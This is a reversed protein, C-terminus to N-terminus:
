SYISELNALESLYHNNVVINSLLEEFNGILDNEFINFGFYKAEINLALFTFLCKSVTTYNKEKISIEISKNLESLTKSFGTHDNLIFRYFSARLLYCKYEINGQDIEVCKRFLDVAEIPSKRMQNEDLNEWFYLANKFTRESDSPPIKEFFFYHSWTSLDDLKTNIYPNKIGEFDDKQLNYFGNIMLFKEFNEKTFLEPYFLRPWHYTYTNPTSILLKGDPKLVRNIEEIAYQPNSFHEFVEFAFIIDASNDLEDIREKDLNCKKAEISLKRCNNIASDSIDYGVVFNKDKLPLLIGGEGGVGIEIIKKNEPLEGFFHQLIQYNKIQTAEKVQDNDSWFDKYFNESDSSFQKDSNVITKIHDKSNM